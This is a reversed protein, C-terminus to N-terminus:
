EDELADEALFDLLWRENAEWVRAQRPDLGLRKHMRETRHAEQSSQYALDHCHRCGFTVEGPPLYLKAARRECPKAGVSYPCSFWFRQGGFPAPTTTLPVVLDISYRRSLAYRLRLSRNEETGMVWYDLVFARRDRRKWAQQGSTGVSLPKPLDKVALVFSEEVTRKREEWRWWNGSGLGGMLVGREGMLAGRKALIM